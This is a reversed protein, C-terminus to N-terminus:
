VDPQPENDLDLRTTANDAGRVGATAWKYLGLWTILEFHPEAHQHLGVPSPVYVVGEILEAKKLHPMAEYRREFEARSLRDGAELPPIGDDGGHRKTRDSATAMSPSRESSPLREGAESVPLRIPKEPM